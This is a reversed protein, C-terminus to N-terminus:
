LLARHHSHKLSWQLVTAWTPADRQCDDANALYSAYRACSIGLALSPLRVPWDSSGGGRLSECSHGYKRNFM